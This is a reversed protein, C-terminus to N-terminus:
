VFFSGREIETLASAYFANKDKIYKIWEDPRYKKEDVKKRFDNHLPRLNEDRDGFNKTYEKKSLIKCFSLDPRYKIPLRRGRCVINGNNDDKIKINEIKDNNKIVLLRKIQMQLEHENNDLFYINEDANLIQLKNLEAVDEAKIKVMSAKKDGIKYCKNDYFIISKKASIPLIIMLGKSLLAINSGQELNHFCLNYLVCPNDSIIFSGSNENILVKCKLDQLLPLAMIANQINKKALVDRRAKIDIVLDEHGSTERFEYNNSIIEKATNNAIEIAMDVYYKTRFTQLSVFTLLSSIEKAKLNLEKIIPSIFDEISGLGEETKKGKGYFYDESCQGKIPVQKKFDDSKFNYLNINKTNNSFNRLLFQPVYHQNKHQPM